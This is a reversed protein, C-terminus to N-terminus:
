KKGMELLWFPEMDFVIAELDQLIDKIISEDMKAKDVLVFIKPWKLGVSHSLSTQLTRSQHRGGERM